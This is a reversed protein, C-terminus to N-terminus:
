RASGTVTGMCLRTASWACLFRSSEEFPRRRLIEGVGFDLPADFLHPCGHLGCRPDPQGCRALSRYASGKATKTLGVKSWLVVGVPGAEEFSAEANGSERPDDSTVKGHSNLCEVAVPLRDIPGFLWRRPSPM